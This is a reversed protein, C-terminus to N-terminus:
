PRAGRQEPASAARAAAAAGDHQDPLPFVALSRVLDNEAFCRKPSRLTLAWTHDAVSQAVSLMQSTSNQPTRWMRNRHRQPGPELAQPRAPGELGRSAELAGPLRCLPRLFAGADCWSSVAWLLGSLTWFAAWLVHGGSGLCFHCACSSESGPYPPNRSRHDCYDGCNKLFRIIANATAVVHTGSKGAIRRQM